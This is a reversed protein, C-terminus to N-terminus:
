SRREIVYSVLDALSQKARNQPLGELARLAKDAFERAIAYSDQIITSNQIIELAKKLNEKKEQGQFLPKIPNDQPHRELLLLAPLTLTGQLLDNGVPKGVEEELGEFDLIDDVIQFAMGLNNGYARLAQVSPEPAGGLLAGTEGATSFLSATKNYIREQYQERTQHWNYASTLEFLEGSSLEMITESFRRIVRVNGTDCVFTASTAFVYDGMLVAINRGWLSSVTARGRRTDSNDVTDDHILTAIHLLEVAAAMIIPSENEHPYFKSALLTIAPRVRKGPVDLVHNLLESLFPFSINSVESLKKEVRDLEELIPEYISLTQM